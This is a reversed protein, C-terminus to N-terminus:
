VLRLHGEAGPAHPEGTPSIERAAVRLAHTAFAHRALVEDLEEPPVAVSSKKWLTSELESHAIALQLTLVILPPVSVGHERIAAMAAAAQAYLDMHVWRTVLESCTREYADLATGLAFAESRALSDPM